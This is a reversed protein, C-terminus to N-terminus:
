VGASEEAALAEMKRRWEAASERTIRHHKGVKMLRPRQSKPLNYFTSVSFRHRDCFEKVPYADPALDNIDEVGEAAKPDKPDM